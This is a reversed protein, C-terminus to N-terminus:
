FVRTSADPDDELVRHPDGHDIWGLHGGHMNYGILRQLKEPFTRALNPPVTLYQNEEQRLWGLLYGILAGIRPGNSNNAGGGHRTAGSYFAVSGRPMVTSIIESAEPERDAPWLHSGPVMQTGGNEATFDTVAWMCHLAMPPKPDPVYWIGDDRHIMQSKEGPGIAITHTVHLQIADCHPLLLTEAAGLVLPNIAMDRAAASLAMLGSVRKTKFGAFDDVGIWRADFAPELNAALADITEDDALNEVIACGSEDLATSVDALAVDVDFRPMEM